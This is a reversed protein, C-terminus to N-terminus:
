EPALKWRQRLRPSSILYFLFKHPMKRVPPAYAGYAGQIHIGSTELNPLIFCCQKLDPIGPLSLNPAMFDQTEQQRFQVGVLLVSM